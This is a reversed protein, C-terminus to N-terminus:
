LAERFDGVAAFREKARALARTASPSCMLTEELAASSTYNIVDWGQEAPLQGEKCGDQALSAIFNPVNVGHDKAIALIGGHERGIFCLDSFALHGAHSLGVLRKKTPTAEYGSEIKPFKTITDDLGALVLTSKLSGGASSGGGAMAVIVEVGPRGALGGVAGAGASHGALARRHPDLHGEFFALSEDNRELAEILKYTNGKQDAGMVTMGMSSLVDKLQIGPHDQSLVVFGRSAWHAMQTASQTRFAATGHVFIVTPYPGHDEDLPLDRYCDCPHDPNADDPIKKRESGPLHERVDYHVKGKGAESGVRAPYWVETTLGAVTLTKVGVPWPGRAGPDELAPLLRAGECAGQRLSPQSAGHPGSGQSANPGSSPGVGAGSPSPSGATAGSPEVTELAEPSTPETSGACAVASVLGIRWGLGLAWRFVM